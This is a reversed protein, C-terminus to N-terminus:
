ELSLWISQGDEAFHDFLLEVQADSMGKLLESFRAPDAANEIIIRLLEDDSLDEMRVPHISRYNILRTVRRHLSNM